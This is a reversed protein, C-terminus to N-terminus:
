RRRRRAFLPRPDFHARWRLLRRWGPYLSRSLTRELRWTREPADPALHAPGYIATTTTDALELLVSSSGLRAGAHRAYELPTREPTLALDRELLRDVAEEWAGVVRAAASPARRRRHRRRAKAIPVVLVVLLVLGAFALLAPRLYEPEPEVPPDGPPPAITTTPKQSGDSPVPVPAPAMRPQQPTDRQTKAPDTPDFAVWGHGTFHVEAWAHADATTVQERVRYGVAVRSPYGLVRAMVAFASAHLEAYAKDDGDQSAGLLRSIRAYSHGPAADLSYPLGRLHAEIARLKEAPTAAASTVALTQALVGAPVTDPVERFAAFEASSSPAAERTLDRALPQVGTVEYTTGPPWSREALLSDATASFAITKPAATTFRVTNPRGVVPLFPPPLEGLTIRATVGAGSTDRALREGVVLYDDDSTWVTGDFHGLAATRIGVLEGTTRATFLPRVPKTILQNRVENLPTILDPPPVPDTHLPRPDLRDASSAVAGAGVGAAVAFVLFAAGGAAARMRVSTTARLFTLLVLLAACVAAAELHAGQLSAVVVLGAVFGALLPGAPALVARSRLALLVSAFATSWLLLLVAVLVQGTPEAPVSVSLVRAWGGAVGLGFESAVRMWGEDFTDHLAFPVAILPFAAFAAVRWGLGRRATSWALASAVLVATGLAPLFDGTTFFDLYLLGSVGATVACVFVQVM